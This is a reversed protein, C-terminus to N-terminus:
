YNLIKITDIGYSHGDYKSDYLIEILGLMQLKELTRSNCHTLVLGQKEAEWNKKLYNESIAKEIYDERYYKAQTRRFWEAYDYKRAADIKARAEILVKEQAATLKM